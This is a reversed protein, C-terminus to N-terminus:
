LECYNGDGVLNKCPYRWTLRNGEILTDAHEPGWSGAPYGYLKLKKDNKWEHIVPDIIEWAMEVADNRPYLTADGHIADILLREYAEPIYNDSQSSYLFDMNVSNVEFGSGPKKIGFKLLVGEDPQIRFILQNDKDIKESSHHFLYHPTSRFHIVIETVRTPLRKGTRLYFPVDAWRWNDIYLKLAVFTETTSNKDVNMEERYGKLQKGNIRSSLYQGRIINRKIDKKSFRRFSKFLKITENRISEASLNVPPEMAIMGVLNMLHNQIMDRLAGSQEYYGARNEIGLSEAATIEIHHIFNRNWLPEFISNSFRSVLINQVTEKGLYHDIRFIQSEDFCAHLSLNLKRSSQLDFGFPKEIILRKFGNKQNSLGNESLGRAITEFLNPPTSLYFIYNGPIDYERSLDHLKITLATYEDPDTTTLPLYYIIKKFQEINEAENAKDIHSNELIVKKRFDEDNMRTRGVGLIVFKEPLLNSRFSQLLAPILKRLTLDGSAGFIILVSNNKQQM